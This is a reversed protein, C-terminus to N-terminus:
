ATGIASRISALHGKAHGILIGEIMQEVTMHRGGALTGSRRLDADNLGRVTAAATAGNKRLLDLTEERTCRTYEQAHQANGQDIMEMTMPPLPQGAAVTKALGAIRPHGMGVHHAVVGVSWGEGVCKSRWEEDTSREVASILERNVEEFRNALVQAQEGM